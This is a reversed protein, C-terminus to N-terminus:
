LTVILRIHEPINNTFLKYTQDLLTFKSTRKGNINIVSVKLYEKGIQDILISAGFNQELDLIGKSINDKKENTLSPITNLKENIEKM